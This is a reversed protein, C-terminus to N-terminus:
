DLRIDKREILKRYVSAKLQLQRMVEPQNWTLAEFAYTEYRTQLEPHANAKAVDRQISDRLAPPLGKPALLSVFSTVEMGKPGGAEAITPVDPFQPLRKSSGTALYRLKGARYVGQSSPISGFSWAIDSSGVSSFLQGMDRFAIHNMQIGSLLELQEGGLHGQSGVGWSGYSLKGPNAKADAILDAMSKWKADKPVAVLFPASYLPAVMDFAKLPEFNRSKYLLPLASLHESDLQVLHYGDAPLTKVFDMVVFGGAGARNNVVVPQGWIESLKTALNRLIADPGSGASAYTYLNVPKTPFSAQASAQGAALATVSALAALLLSRRTAPLACNNLPRM